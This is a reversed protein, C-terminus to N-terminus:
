KLKVGQNAVKARQIYRLPMAPSSWGGADQLRDIPTGNRAATTAWYHRCDHPSLGALGIEQGLARVRASLARTGLGLLSGSEPAEPLYARAAALTDPTLQHVQVLDVKPRYFRLEGTALDVSQAGKADNARLGAAEGCRLGHDLLLCMLLRDRSDPRDKLRAAQDAGIPVPQRKKAGLRTVERRGDLRAGERHGYGQVGKILLAEGPDIAGAKSALGAYTKVTALRVGISGIAYGAALQWRVFGEVIGWTVGRWSEPNLAMDGAVIGVDELYVAFLALDADQRRITEEAKRSRYDDFARRAAVQNAAQGALTLRHESAPILDTM